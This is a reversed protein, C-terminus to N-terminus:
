CRCNGVTAESSGTLSTFPEARPESAAHLSQRSLGLLVQLLIALIQFFGNASASSLLKYKLHKLTPALVYGLADGSIIRVSNDYM